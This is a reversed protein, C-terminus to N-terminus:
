VRVGPCQIPEMADLGDMWAEFLGFTAYAAQIAQDQQRADTILNLMGCLDRWIHADEPAGLFFSRGAITQGLLHDLHRSLSRGGILAGERVYLSGLLAADTNILSLTAMTASAEIQATSQDLSTLDDQLRMSRMRCFATLQVNDPVFRDFAAELGRQYGLLRTLLEIYGTRSISQKLLPQFSAHDHLREHIIRTEDRLRNRTNNM